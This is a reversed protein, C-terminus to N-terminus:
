FIPSCFERSVVHSSAADAAENFRYPDLKRTNSFPAVDAVDRLYRRLTQRAIGLIKAAQFLNGGTHDMVQPLLLRNFERHADDYLGESRGSIRESVFRELDLQVNSADYPHPQSAEISKLTPLMSPLLLPGHAQLLSQKLVSQLERVNGPWCHDRLALLVDPSVGRIEPNLKPGYLSVFHHVLQQLDEGRQRLPPLHITFVGLRYYLDERFKGAAALSKLDRHTSSIIRVDTRITESGGVREFSQDQLIRLMKAQLALPMDGIEDLLLTGGSAQEFRGIRRRDAGSFAGKEHGFLESELLQEPIAACNLALFVQPNRSSHSHIAHAVLEKGTGSEGTILVPIDQHSVRGISKYVDRMPPSNGILCGAVSEESGISPVSPCEQRLRVMELAQEMVQRVQAPVLPKYLCDFAGLKMAEITAHTAHSFTAFLIPICPNIARITELASLGFGVAPRHDILIVDPFSETLRILAEATTGVIEVHHALKRFLEQIELLRQNPDESVFLLRAM